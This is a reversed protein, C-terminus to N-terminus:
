DVEEFKKRFVKQDRTHEYGLHHYFIHAENRQSGSRLRMETFANARAWEECAMMLKQGVGSRRVTQDVVIGGIEAYELEILYKGYVHAWGSILHDAEEYVFIGHAKNSLLRDLRAEAIDRDVIYGLQLCLTALAPADKMEAPRIM